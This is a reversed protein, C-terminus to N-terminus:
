KKEAPKVRIMVPESIVIDAIDRPAAADTARKLQEKSETLANTAAKMKANVAAVAKTMQDKKAMPAAKADNVVKIVETELSKIELAISNAKAEASTILELNHRYKVVAGGIFSVHYDGPPVKLAGLDLVAQSSNAKVLIEFGPANEFGAGVVKMQIKDGSFDSRSKLILPITLKEGM